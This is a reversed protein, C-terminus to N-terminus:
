MQFIIYDKAQEIGDADTIIQGNMTFEFGAYEAIKELTEYREAADKTDKFFGASKLEERFMVKMTDVATVWAQGYLNNITTTNM